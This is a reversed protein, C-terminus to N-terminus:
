AKWKRLHPWHDLPDARGSHVSDMFIIQIAPLTEHVKHLIYPENDFFYLHEHQPLLGKLYTCKFETDDKRLHPKLALHTFDIDVPFKWQKLSAITGAMMRVQDRGTLYTIHAGRHYLENVFDVAGEYPKDYKLYDNSFFNNSWYDKAKNYFQPCNVGSRALVEKIGWDDHRVLLNRLKKVESPYHIMFFEEQIMEKLIVETRPTVNFLTSDLDFVCHISGEKNAHQM